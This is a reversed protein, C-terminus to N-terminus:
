DITGLDILEDLPLVVPDGVPHQWEVSWRLVVQQPRNDAAMIEGVRDLGITGQRAFPEANSGLPNQQNIGRISDPILRTPDVEETAPDDTGVFIIRPSVRLRADNNDIIRWRLFGWEDTIQLDEISLNIGGGVAIFLPEAMAFPLPLADLALEGEAADVSFAACGNCGTRVRMETAERVELQPASIPLAAVDPFEVLRVGPAFRSQVAQSATREMGDGALVWEAVHFEGTEVRDLDSRTASNVVVFLSGGRNFAAVAKLGVGDVEVYGDPVVPDPTPAPLTTTTTSATRTPEAVSDRGGFLLGIALGAVIALVIPAVTAPRSREGDPDPDLPSRMIEDWITDSM